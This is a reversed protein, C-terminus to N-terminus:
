IATMQDSKVAAIQRTKVRLNREHRVFVDAHDHKHDAIVSRRKVIRDAVVHVFAQESHVLRRPGIAQEVDSQFALLGACFRPGLFTKAAHGIRLWRMRERIIYALISMGGVSSQFDAHLVILKLKIKVLDTQRQRMEM